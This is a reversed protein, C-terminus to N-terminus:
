EQFLNNTENYTMDLAESLKVITRPQPNREGRELLSITNVGLDAKDALDQQSMDRIARAQQLNRM